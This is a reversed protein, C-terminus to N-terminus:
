RAGELRARRKQWEAPSLLRVDEEAGLELGTRVEVWLQLQDPDGEVPPLVPWLYASGGATAISQGDPRFVAARVIGGHPLPPGIPRCTAADWLRATQDESGTLITRGDPSFAVAHVNSRHELPKGRREHTRADWLQASGTNSGTLLANGNPSFVAACVSDQHELVALTKGSQLDWLRASRDASATLVTTGDPSITISRVEDDHGPLKRRRRAELNWQSITGFRGGVLLTKNDATFALSRVGSPHTLPPGDQRFTGTQWLQIQSAAPRRRTRSTKPGGPRTCATALRKGDPSFVVSHVTGEAALFGGRNQGSAADWIRFKRDVSGTAVMKGDHSFAVAHVERPHALVLRPLPRSSVEWLRATDGWCGTLVSKGDPSFVASLVGFQHLLPAGIPEGTGADWLRVTHDYSGTLLTRGDPSIDVAVVKSAHRLPPGIRACTRADWRQATGDWCGTLLVGGDRDFALSTLRDAHELLVGRRKGTALNWFRANNDECGTAIETATGPRFAVAIVPKRKLHVLEAGRQKGTAANWLRATGDEGGTLLTRSDASFAVARVLGEHGELVRLRRGGQAERLEVREGVALAMLKNDPSFAVAEVPKDHEVRAILKGSAPDWLESNGHLGGTLVAKGDPRYAARQGRGPQPRYAAVPFVHGAWAGLNARCAQRIDDADEPALRLGQVLWLLGRDAQGTECLMIGRDLALLAALRQARHHAAAEAEAREIAKRREDNAQGWLWGAV